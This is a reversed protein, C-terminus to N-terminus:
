AEQEIPGIGAAPPAGLDVGTLTRYASQYGEVSKEIIDLWVELEGGVDTDKHDIVNVDLLIDRAFNACQQHSIYRNSQSSTIPGKTEKQWLKSKM